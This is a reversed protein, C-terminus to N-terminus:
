TMRCLWLSSKCPTRNWYAKTFITVQNKQWHSSQIEDQWTAMTNFLEGGTLLEGGYCYLGTLLAGGTLKQKKSLVLMFLLM